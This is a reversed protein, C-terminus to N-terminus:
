KISINTFNLNWNGNPKKHDVALKFGNIDKYNEFTTMMSPETQNAKRFIWEKILFNDDYFIDYADGPTYGGNNSYTLTIKNLATKSIPAETKVPESITTGSDWVLQFPILLWFKDNIFGPDVKLSISDLASRNYSITDTSTISTIDNTKPKWVWHREFHTSDKDVNFTFAIENVNKWNEFGHANAIKEAMTLSKPEPISKTNDKCSTILLTILTIYIFNKM